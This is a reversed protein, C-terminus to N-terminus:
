SRFKLARRPVPMITMEPEDKKFGSGQARSPVGLDSKSLGLAGHKRKKVMSSLVRNKYRLVPNLGCAILLPHTM